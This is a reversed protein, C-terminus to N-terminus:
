KGTREKARTLDCRCSMRDKRELRSGFPGPFPCVNFDIFDLFLYGVASLRSALSNNAPVLPDATILELETIM